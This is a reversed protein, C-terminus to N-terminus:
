TRGRGRLLAALAVLLGLAGLGIGVYALTQASSADDSAAL